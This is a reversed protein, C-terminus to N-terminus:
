DENFPINRMTEIRGRNKPRYIWIIVGCYFSFFLVLAFTKTYALLGEM